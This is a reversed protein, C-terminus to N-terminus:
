GQGPELLEKAGDSYHIEYDGTIFYGYIGEMSQLLAMGKELGMSFCATSLADGDVSHPSVITVAILGNDYPYGTDPNLLHHYNTGDVTFCREYVGSSVVSQDRIRLRAILENRDEFPKQLGIRFPENDPRQGVCLVNGGLNIIASAVGRSVLYEKVRDAIYGKAISGLDLTVDPSLFTLTNGELRILRYDVRAAAEAVAQAPPVEHTGGTFNWLTSLPEITLDYAGGSRGSYYLGTRILEATDDSLTFVTEGPARHNLRYIESSEITKSFRNEYSKVLDMCSDLIAEDRTDYLTITVFTNLLFDTRSIETHKPTFAARLALSLILLAPLLLIIRRPKM